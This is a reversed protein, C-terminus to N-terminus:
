AFIFVVNLKYKDWIEIKRGPWRWKKKCKKEVNISFRKLFWGIDIRPQLAFQFKFRPSTHQGQETNPVQVKRTISACGNHTFYESLSPIFANLVLSLCYIGGHRLFWCSYLIFRKLSMYRLSSRLHSICSVGLCIYRERSRIFDIQSNPLIAIDSRFM